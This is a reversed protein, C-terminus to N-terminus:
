CARRPWRAYDLSSVGLFVGSNANVGRVNSFPANRRNRRPLRFVVSSRISGEFQLDFDGTQNPWWLLHSDGWECVDLTKEPDKRLRSKPGLRRSRRVTPFAVLRSFDFGRRAARRFRSASTA